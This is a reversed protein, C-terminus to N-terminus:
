GVSGFWSVDFQSLRVSSFQGWLAVGTVDARQRLHCLVVRLDRAERWGLTVLSGDSLGSGACDFAFLSCGLALVMSLYHCSQARSAQFRCAPIDIYLFIYPSIGLYMVM